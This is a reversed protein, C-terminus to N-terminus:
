LFFKVLRIGFWCMLLCLGNSLMLYGFVLPWQENSLMQVAQLSYSSFTTFAGCFGIAMGVWVLSSSGMLIGILLSGTANILLIVWHDPIPLWLTLAHRAIAGMCGGMGILMITLLPQM